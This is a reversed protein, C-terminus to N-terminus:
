IRTEGATIGGKVVYGSTNNLIIKSSQLSSVSLDKFSLAIQKGEMM